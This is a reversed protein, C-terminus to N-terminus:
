RDQIKGELPLREANNGPVPEGLCKQLFDLVRDYFPDRLPRHDAANVQEAIVYVQDRVWGPTRLQV